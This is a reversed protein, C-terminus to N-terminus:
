DACANNLDVSLQFLAQYRDASATWTLGKDIIVNRAAQGLRLRLERDETLRQLHRALHDTDGASFLLGNKDHEIIESVGPLDSAIVARGAAMAEVVVNPRGESHSTLVFVDATALIGGIRDPSISGTFRVYDTLGLKLSLDILSAREPGDGVVVADFVTISKIKDLAFLLEHIAKGAVLNGISVVRLIPSSEPPPLMLLTDEVGNPLHTLRSEAWPYQRTLATRMAESVTVTRTSLHLVWGTTLRTLASHNLRSIDSGRLTTVVPRCRLRGVLGCVLGIFSWNAHIIDARKSKKYVAVFMGLLLLPVVLRLVPHKKLTAPIGGPQHTLKQWSKLGYRFCHVPYAADSILAEKGCPTMVELRMNKSLVEALRQIFIGSVDGPRQPFSSSVLLVRLASTHPARENNSTSKELTTHIM